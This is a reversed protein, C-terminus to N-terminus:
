AGVCRGEGQGTDSDSKNAQADKGEWADLLAAEEEPTLYPLDLAECEQRLNQILNYMEKTTFVSSGYWSRINHYGPIGACEGLDDVFWGVKRGGDSWIRTWEGIAEPKIPLIKYTGGSDRICSRYVEEPSIGIESAIQGILKWAYANADLSRKNRHEKIELRYQKTPHLASLLYEVRRMVVAKDSQRFVFPKM